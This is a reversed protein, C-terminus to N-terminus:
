DLHMVEQPSYNHEHCVHITAMISVPVVHGGVEWHEEDGNAPNLRSHTAFWM